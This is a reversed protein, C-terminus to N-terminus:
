SERRRIFWIRVILVEGLRPQAQFVVGLPPALFVRRGRSRSEGKLEADETLEDHIRDLAALLSASDSQNDWIEELTKFADTDWSVRYIM